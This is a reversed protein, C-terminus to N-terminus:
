DHIAVESPNPTTDDADILAAVDINHRRAVELLYAGVEGKDIRALALLRTRLVDAVPKPNTTPPVRLMRFLEDPKTRVLTGSDAFATYGPSAEIRAAFKLDGSAHATSRDLGLRLQEGWEAVSRRGAGTLVLSRDLLGDSVAEEIGKHIRSTDPFEPRPTFSFRSPFKHFALEVLSGEDLQRGGDERLSVCLAVLAADSFTRIREADPVLRVVEAVLESSVGAQSLGGEVIRAKVVGSRGPDIITRRRSSTSRRGTARQQKGIRRLYGRQELRRLSATFTEPNPLATDVWRMTNPFAHWCALFADRENVDQSEGGLAAVAALVLDDKSADGVATM